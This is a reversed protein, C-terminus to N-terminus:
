AFSSMTENKLEVKGSGCSSDHFSNLTGSFNADRTIDQKRPSCNCISDSYLSGFSPLPIPLMPCLVALLAACIWEECAERGTFSGDDDCGEGGPNPGASVTVSILDFNLRDRIRGRGDGLGAFQNVIYDRRCFHPFMCEQEQEAHLQLNESFPGELLVASPLVPPPVLFLLRRAYVNVQEM